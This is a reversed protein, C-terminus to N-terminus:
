KKPKAAKEDLKKMREELRARRNEMHGDKKTEHFKRMAEHCIKMAPHDKADAVCTRLDQMHKIRDDTESLMRAKHTEFNEGPSATALQPVAFALAALSLTYISKM